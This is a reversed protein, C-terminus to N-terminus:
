SRLVLWKGGIVVALLTGAIWLLAWFRRPLPTLESLTGADGGGRHAEAPRFGSLLLLWTMGYTFVEELGDHAFRMVAALLGIAAVVSVVGFSRRILSFLLVLSIVAVWLVSV